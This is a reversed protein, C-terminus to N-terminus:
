EGTQEAHHRGTYDQSQRRYFEMNIMEYLDMSEEILRQRGLYVKFDRQRELVIQMCAAVAHIESVRSSM